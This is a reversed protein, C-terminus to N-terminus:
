SEDALPPAVVVGPEDFGEIFQAGPDSCGCGAGGWGIGTGVCPQCRGSRRLLSGRAGFEVGHRESCYGDWVNTRWSPTFECCGPTLGYTPGACGPVAYGGDLGRGSFSSQSNCCPGFAAAANSLTCIVLVALVQHMLRM